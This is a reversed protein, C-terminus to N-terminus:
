PDHDFESLVYMKFSYTELISAIAWFKIGSMNLNTNEVCESTAPCFNTFSVKMPSRQLFPVCYVEWFKM